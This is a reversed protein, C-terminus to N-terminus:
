DTQPVILIKGAQGSKALVLADNVHDLDFRHTILPSLDLRHLWALARPFLSGRSFTGRIVLQRRHLDDLNLSLRDAPNSNGVVVVEGAFRLLGIAENTTRSSTVCEFVVDAGIGGTMDLVAQRLDEKTPDIVQTAGLKLGLDRRFASPESLIVQAAGSHKILALVGLGIPGGGIVVATSGSKVPAVDIAQLSAALPEALSAIELSMDDPIRYVMHEDVILREAWGDRVFTRKACANILGIRCYHCVGCYSYPHVAVRDGPAVSTVASGVSEITGSCEHGLNVPYNIPKSSNRGSWEHVDTGCIGCFAVRVVVDTPSPSPEELDMPRVDEPGVLIAGRM